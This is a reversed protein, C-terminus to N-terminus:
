ATKMGPPSGEPNPRSEQKEPSSGPSAAAKQMPASRPYILESLESAPKPRSFLYGQLEVCGLDTLIDAQEPTEVGEATTSMGLEVALDIIARVISMTEPNEGIEATFTRDIKIRDPRYRRVYSLSSYGTGFDDLAIGVGDGRLKELAARTTPNDQLIASETIELDLRGPELCAARLVDRITQELTGSRLQVPSLNVSLRLHPPWNRAEACAQHLTQQGLAIILGTEEALPIFMSPPIPGHVPHTWRTLAEFGIIERSKASVIPQYVVHLAPTGLAARLDLELIRRQNAAEALEPQFERVCDRGGEKASYLALDANKLLVDADSGDKPAYAIGISATTIVQHDGPACPERIRALLREALACAEGAKPFALLLAFEDGSLRAVVVDPGAVNSIREGVINLLADGVPHGLTDNVTKFYDIDLLLTAIQCGPEELRRRLEEWFFLRNPLGTPLDHRATYRAEDAYRQQIKIQRIVLLVAGAMAMCLSAAGVSILSAIRRWDALVTEMPVSVSVIVPYHALKRSAVLRESGNETVAVSTVLGNSEAAEEGGQDPAPYRALLRGDTRTLAIQSGPGVDITSFFDYFYSQQIAGLVAGLFRGDPAKLKRALYITVSGTGRNRVPESLFEDLDERTSLARFYDRDAVNVSPIAQNRSFNLLDGHRDVIGIADILQLGSVKSRLNEHMGAGSAVKRLGEDDVVRRAEIEEIVANQIFELATFARDTQESLVLALNQLDRSRDSVVRTRMQTAVAIASVVIAIALFVSIVIIGGLLPTHDGRSARQLLGPVDKTM